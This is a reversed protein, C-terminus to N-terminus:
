GECSLCEGTSGQVGAESRIYYLSKIWKDNFALKHVASIVEESEDAPFFLNISQAQCIYKQRASALRIISEQNIEFATKFVDKELETLYGLHVVSGGNNIISSITEDNYQGYAELVKILESNVRNIEGGASGQVFANKYVPEIGQSVSGCVLASSTNPAIALLHTNRVGYGKCWEPEGLLKALRKTAINAEKRLHKFIDKNLQHAEFSEFPISKSQLYTHYGLAGLGLARSKETFRVAKELGRIGKGMQIFEEAVCDLFIISNQVADTDKWEDYLSLNMSSLVCTYTHFEDSHLTIETCLQSATCRLNQDKYLQPQQEHVRDTFFFYGKGTLMKVKLARQYRELAEGDGANLKAIYEDSIIWGLNFDDPNNQLHTIIEWFDEHEIEIYGAWAGRRTNGQSVDRSLQIFDKLVPLVGSATGGSSIPRGRGRINGLYSSTGFGNKTLVAIEKQSEYFEYVSDGVFNGSCSVPCGRTTGMNAIVPTSCALWGRWLLNFFVREYHEKDAGMHRAASSSIRKYISYLDPYEDTTYREKLLQWAPTTTWSPLKGITQLEKREKSLEDYISSV